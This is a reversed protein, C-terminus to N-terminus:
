ATGTAPTVGHGRRITEGAPLTVREGEWLLIGGACTATVALAGEAWEVRVEGQPLPVTGSFAALGAACPAVEFTAFGPSTPSVGLVYRGLLYIPSAGWAHCLSKGYRDGYMAYHEPFSMRPDFEEWITTAGLDLMGGWYARLGELVDELRGLRCLADLEFFKFYPTTIPAIAPNDLVHTVIEAVRGADAFGYVLAFLNAHRTVHRNGSAFSDIYAHQAEDWFREEIQGRLESALRTCDADPEGLLGACRAYAEMALVLLMQEACVAGTKDIDAWDIFTWDGAQGVLFGEGDCRSRLFALMSRMRPFIARLFAADATYLYHDWISMLWYLSYDVITNIHQAVPDKGRLAYMTRRCIDADGYVYHNVLYSQYADGSWIWRDRKIGDLFFERANLRFTYESVAWIRNLTEDSSRFAGRCVLPLLETRAQGRCHPGANRVFAYRFARARCDHAIAGAPVRELLYSHAVDLAEDRSEGFFVDCARDPALGELRLAAFTERGFDLLLGDPRHESSAPAVLDTVFPFVEPHADPGAMLPSTGVPVWEPTLPCVEWAPGSSFPGAEVRIAPLGDTKACAIELRLPGPPLPIDTHFPHKKGNVAVYGIGTAQVRLVAAEPLVGERRFLVSHWCDDLRWFAPWMWDREERRCNLKLAHHLEFDGPYWMWPATQDM